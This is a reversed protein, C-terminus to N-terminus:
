VVGHEQTYAVIGGEGGDHYPMELGHQLDRKKKTGRKGKKKNGHEGADHRPM